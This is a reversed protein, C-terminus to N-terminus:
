RITGTVSFRRLRKFITIRSCNRVEKSKVSGVPVTFTTGSIVSSDFHAIVRVTEVPKSVNITSEWQVLIM